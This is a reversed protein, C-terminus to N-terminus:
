WFFNFFFVNEEVNEVDGSDFALSVHKITKLQLEELDNPLSWHTVKFIEILPDNSSGM